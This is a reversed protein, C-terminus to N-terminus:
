PKHLIKDSTIAESRDRTPNHVRRRTKDKCPIHLFQCSPTLPHESTHDLGAEDPILAIYSTRALM